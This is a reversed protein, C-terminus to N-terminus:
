FLSVITFSLFLLFWNHNIYGYLHYLTVLLWSRKRMKTFHFYWKNNTLNKSKVLLVVFKEGLQVFVEQSLSSGLFIIQLSNFQTNYMLFQYDQEPHSAFVSILCPHTLGFILVWYNFSCLILKVIVLWSLLAAISPLRSTLNLIMSSPLFEQM